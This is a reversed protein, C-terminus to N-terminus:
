RRSATFADWPANVTTCQASSTRAFPVRYSGTASGTLSFTAKVEVTATGGPIVAAFSAEFTGSPVVVAPSRALVFTGQVQCSGGVWTDIGITPEKVENREIRFSVPLGKSTAGSWTGDYLGPANALQTVPIRAGAVTISGTRQEAASNPDVAWQVQSSGTASSGATIRV